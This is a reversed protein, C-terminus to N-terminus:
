GYEKRDVLMAKLEAEAVLNEGVYAFGRMHAIRTKLKLGELRFVLCNGPIVTKRFKANDISIFYVLKGSPNDVSSLLLVGGTQAMAEIILVGPMIPEEPFHGMFFQENYTVNKVGIIVEEDDGIYTIKDVLLFPYRHPLYKAIEKIDIVPEDTPASLIKEMQHHYILKKIFDIHSTHGAKLAVIKGKISMGSLCLDGLMDLIKHSVFELPHRLKNNIIEDGKIVLANDVSGGKILGANQLREVDEYLIFTRSPAIYDRFQKINQEYKLLQTGLLPNDFNIIYILSFEDDPYYSILTDDGSFSVPSKLKLFRKKEDQERIGAREILESFSLASGDDIPVEEGDIEIVCNDVGYAFFCALLHEGTKIIIDGRSLTIGRKTDSVNSVHAKIEPKNKLDIRRFIIGNDPEGPLLRIRTKSGTHVGIGSFEVEREITGQKDSV